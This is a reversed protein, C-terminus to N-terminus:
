LGREGMQGERVLATMRSVTRFYKKMYGGHMMEQTFLADFPVGSALVPVDKDYLGMNIKGAPQGAISIDFFVKTMVEGAAEAGGGGNPQRGRAPAKNQQSLKYEQWAGIYMVAAARVQRQLEARAELLQCSLHDARRAAERAAAHAAAAEGGLTGEATARKAEALSCACLPRGRQSRSLASAM